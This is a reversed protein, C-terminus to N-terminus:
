KVVLSGITTAKHFDDYFGYTGAALPGVYLVIQGHGQVVKEVRFDHSEFEAPTADLNKVTLKVRKGAPITLTQPEFQHNRLAIEATDAAWATASALLAAALVPLAFRM